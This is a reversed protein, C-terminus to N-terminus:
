DKLLTFLPSLSHSPSLCLLCFSLQSVFHCEWPVFLFPSQSLYLVVPMAYYSVSLAHLSPLIDLFCHPASCFLSFSLFIFLFLSSQWKFLTKIKRNSVFLMISSYYCWLFLRECCSLQNHWVTLTHEWRIQKQLYNPRHRALRIHKNTNWDELVEM